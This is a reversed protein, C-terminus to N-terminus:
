RNQYLEIPLVVIRDYLKVFVFYFGDLIVCSIIKKIMEQTRDALPNHHLIIYLNFCIVAISVATILKKKRSM